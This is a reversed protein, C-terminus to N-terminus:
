VDSEQPFIVEFSHERLKEKESGCYPCTKEEDVGLPRLFLRSRRLESVWFQWSTVPARCASCRPIHDIIDTPISM